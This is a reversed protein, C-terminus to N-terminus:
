AAGREIIQRSQVRDIRKGSRAEGIRLHKMGHRVQHGVRRRIEIEFVDFPQDLMPDLREKREGVDMAELQHLAQNALTVVHPWHVTKKADAAAAYAAGIWEVQHFEDATCRMTRTECVLGRETQGM